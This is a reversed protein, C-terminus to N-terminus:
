EKIEENENMKKYYELDDKGSEDTGQPFISHPLFVTIMILLIFIKIRKYMINFM